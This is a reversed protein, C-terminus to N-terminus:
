SPIWAPQSRRWKVVGATELLVPHDHITLFRKEIEILGEKRFDRVLKNLHVASAGILDGMDKQTLPMFFSLPEEVSLQSNREHLRVFLAALRTRAPAKGMLAIREMALSREEQSVLFMLFALRPAVCFLEALKDVPIDCLVVDSLAVLTDIPQEIALTPLGLVDGPLSVATLQRSGNALTIASAAWGQILLHLRAPADDEARIEEGRALQRVPGGMAALQHIDDDLLDGFGTLRSVVQERPDLEGSPAKTGEKTM